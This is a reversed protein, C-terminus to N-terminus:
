STKFRPMTGCNVRADCPRSAPLFEEIVLGFLNSSFEGILDRLKRSYRLVFERFKEPKIVEMKVSTNLMKSREIAM